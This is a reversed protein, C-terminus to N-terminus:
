MSDLVVAGDLAEEQQRVDVCLKATSRLEKTTAFRRRQISGRLQKWCASMHPFVRRAEKNDWAQQRPLRKIGKKHLDSPSLYRRPLGRGGVHIQVGSDLLSRKRRKRSQRIKYTYPLLSLFAIQTQVIGRRGVIWCFIDSFVLTRSFWLLRPCAARSSSGRPPLFLTLVTAVVLSAGM